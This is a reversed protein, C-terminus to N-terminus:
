FHTRLYIDIVRFKSFKNQGNLNMLFLFCIFKDQYCLFVHINITKFGDLSWIYTLVMDKQFYILYKSNYLFLKHGLEFKIQENNLYRGM